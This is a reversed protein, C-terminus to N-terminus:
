HASHPFENQGGDPAAPLLIRFETGKDPASKVTVTGGHAEVIGKVLNLGLGTGHLQDEVARRGRFFADFVHAQEDAPIGAGRDAVRIAVGGGEAPAASLGVWQGEAGYKAANALLNNVARELALPDGSIAPLGPAIEVAFACGAERMVTEHAAACSALLPALDVRERATQLPRGSRAAAYQMVQEVLATLKESEPQILGGYREVQAPNAAMKGRLNYAATRIVTLPTRLEHSVGAVFDIQMEALRRSQRSTRLVIGVAALLLALIGGTVALNRRRTRAVVGELSGAENRVALTWRGESNDPPPRRGPPGGGRRFITEFQPQLIAVEADPKATANGAIVRAPDNRVSVSYLYEAAAPEGLHRALLEPVLVTALYPGDLDLLVWELERPGPGFGPGPGPGRPFRPLEILTPDNRIGTGWRGREGALRALIQRRTGEWQPPWPQLEEAMAELNLRLLQVDGQAPRAIYAGRLMGAHHGSDRWAHLRGLSDGSDGRVAARCLLSIEENFEQSLRNLGSQLTTELRQKEAVSVEGIWRYQLAGLIGCLLVLSGIELWGRWRQRSNRM